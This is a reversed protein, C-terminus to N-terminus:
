RSDPQRKSEFEFITITRDLDIRHYLPVDGQRGRAVLHHTRAIEAFCRRPHKSHQFDLYLASTTATMWVPWTDTSTKQTGATVPVAASAMAEIFPLIAAQTEASL